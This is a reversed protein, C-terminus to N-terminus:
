VFMSPSCLQTCVGCIGSYVGMVRFDKKKAFEGAYSLLKRLLGWM